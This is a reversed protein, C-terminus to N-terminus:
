RSENFFYAILIPKDSPLAIFPKFISNNLNFAYDPYSSEHLSVVVFKVNNSFVFSLLDSENAPFSVVPLE